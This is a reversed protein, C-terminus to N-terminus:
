TKLFNIKLTQFKIMIGIKIKKTLNRAIHNYTKSGHYIINNIIKTFYM